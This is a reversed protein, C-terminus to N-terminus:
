NVGTETLQLAARMGSGGGGIVIADFSMTKINAM